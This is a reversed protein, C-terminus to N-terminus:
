GRVYDVLQEIAFEQDAIKSKVLDGISILGVLKKHHLVPLHRVRKETMVAMCEDVTQEPWACAVRTEMIDGVRTTPSAKGELFVKRAYHRETFIGVPKGDDIVVVSGVDRDAMKKIADFVSNDPRVSLVEHGKKDLVQQITTM